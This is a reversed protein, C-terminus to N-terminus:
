PKPKELKELITTWNVSCMGIDSWKRIKQAIFAENGKFLRSHAFMTAAVELDAKAESLQDIRALLGTYLARNVMEFRKPDEQIFASISYCMQIEESTMVAEYEM